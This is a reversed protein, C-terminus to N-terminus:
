AAGAVTPGPAFLPALEAYRSTILGDVGWGALRHAEDATEVPWSMVIAARERLDRVTAADLLKRHISIGALRRKPFRGRVRALQRRGGVSHVVRVGPLAEFPPLLDWSQSCVVIQAAAGHDALAAIVRESLRVDRGKLDLMLRAPGAARLLEDLQLRPAWPSSLTWRDWLVPVPGLTKLHRVELRGAFLHVDAEILPVGLTRAARM